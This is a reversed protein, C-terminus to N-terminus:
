CLSYHKTRYAMQCKIVRDGFTSFCLRAFEVFRDATDENLWGGLQQLYQPLDWHHLAVIPKVGSSVLDDLLNNYYKLGAQSVNNIDGTPLIRSWSLSFYYHNVQLVFTDTISLVQEKNFWSHKM